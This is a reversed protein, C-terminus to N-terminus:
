NSLRQPSRLLVEVLVAAVRVGFVSFDFFRKDRKGYRSLWFLVEFRLTYGRLSASIGSHQKM